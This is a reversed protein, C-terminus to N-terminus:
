RRRAPKGPRRWFTKLPSLTLTAGGTTLCTENFSAMTKHDIAGVDHMDQMTEHIAGMAESRYAKTM